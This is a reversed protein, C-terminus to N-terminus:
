DDLDYDDEPASEDAYIMDKFKQPLILHVTDGNKGDRAHGNRDKAYALTGRKALNRCLARNTGKPGAIKVIEAITFGGERDPSAETLEQVADLIRAEPKTLNHLQDVLRVRKQAKEGVEGVPHPAMRLPVAFLTKNPEHTDKDLVQAIGYNNGSFPKSAPKEKVEISAVTVPVLKMGFPKRKQMGRAKEHYVNLLGEGASEYFREFDIAGRLSGSGRGTRSGDKSKKPHHVVGVCGGTTGAIIKLARGLKSMDDASNENFEVGSSAVTQAMSDFMVLGVPDNGAKRMIYNIVDSRGKDSLIDFGHEDLDVIHLWDLKENDDARSFEQQLAKFRNQTEAGGEADFYFCHAKRSAWGMYDTGTAICAMLGLEAFSKGINSEGVAQCTSAHNLYGDVLYDKKGLKPEDMLDADTCTNVNREDKPLECIMGLFDNFSAAAHEKEMQALTAGPEEDVFDMLDLVREFWESSELCKAFGVFRLWNERGNDDGHSNTGRFHGPKNEHLWHVIHEAKQMHEETFESLDIVARDVNRRSALAEIVAANADPAGVLAAIDFAKGPAIAVYQNGRKVDISLGELGDASHKLTAQDIDGPIRCIYHASPRDEDLSWQFKAAGKRLERLRRARTFGDVKENEEFKYADDDVLVRDDLRVGIADATEWRDDDLPLAETLSGFKCLAKKDKLPFVILNKRILARILKYFGTSDAEPVTYIVEINDQKPTIKM